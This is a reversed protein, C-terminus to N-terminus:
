SRLFIGDIEHTPRESTRRQHILILLPPFHPPPLSHGSTHCLDRSYIGPPHCRDDTEDEDGDDSSWDDVAWLKSPDTKPPANESTMSDISARREMSARAGPDARTDSPARMRADPAGAAPDGGAAALSPSAAAGGARPQGGGHRTSGGGDRNSGGHAGNGSGAGSYKKQLEAPPKSGCNGM